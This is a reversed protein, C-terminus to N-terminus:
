ITARKLKDSAGLIVLRDYGSSSGQIPAISYAGSSQQLLQLQSYFTFKEHEYQSDGSLIATVWKILDQPIAIEARSLGDIPLSGDGEKAHRIQNLTVFTPLQNAHQTKDFEIFAFKGLLYILRIIVRWTQLRAQEGDRFIAVLKHHIIPYVSRRWQTAM